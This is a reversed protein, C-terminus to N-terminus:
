IARRRPTESWAAAVIALRQKAPAADHRLGFPDGARQRLAFPVATGAGGAAGGMAVLMGGQAEGVARVAPEQQATMSAATEVGDEVRQAAEPQDRRVATARLGVERLQRPMARRVVGLGRLPLRLRQGAPPLGRRDAPGQGRGIQASAADGAIQRVAQAEVGAAPMRAALAEGGQHSEHFAAGPKGDMPRVQASVTAALRRHLRRLRHEPSDGPARHPDRRGLAPKHHRLADLGREGRAEPRKPRGAFIQAASEVLPVDNWDRGEPAPLLSVRWGLGAARTCHKPPM